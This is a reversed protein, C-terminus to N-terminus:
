NVQIRLKEPLEQIFYNASSYLNFIEDVTKELPYDSFGQHVLSNRLEGLELFDQISSELKKDRSVERKMFDLFESGFLGFFKNAKRESWDFYTHYQREIAKNKLFAVAFADAMTKEMYYTILIDRICIEFHSAAALLLSKRFAEDVSNMLSIEGSEFLLGILIKHEEYMRHIIAESM